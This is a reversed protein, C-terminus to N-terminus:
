RWAKVISHLLDAFVNTGTNWRATSDIEDAGIGASVEAIAAETRSRREREAAEEAARERAHELGGQEVFRIVEALEGADFWLGHAKCVDLVIGSVRGYAQRNMVKACVPCRVYRVTAERSVARKPLALRLGTSGDRAAM